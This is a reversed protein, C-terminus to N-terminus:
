TSRSCQSQRKAQDGGATGCSIAMSTIKLHRNPNIPFEAVATSRADFGAWVPCYEQHSSFGRNVFRAARLALGTDAKTRNFGDLAGCLRQYHFSL